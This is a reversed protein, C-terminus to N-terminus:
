KGLVTEDDGITLNRAPKGAGARAAAVNALAPGLGAAFIGAVMDENARRQSVRDSHEIRQDVFEHMRDVIALM